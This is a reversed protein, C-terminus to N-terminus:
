KNQEGNQRWFGELNQQYVSFDKLTIDSSMNTFTHMTNYKHIETIQITYLLQLSTKPEDTSYGKM